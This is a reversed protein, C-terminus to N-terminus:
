FVKNLIRILLGPKLNDRILGQGFYRIRLQGVATSRVVNAPDVDAPRVVGTLVLVQRDGNIDMERIGEVVLDGNPLVEVVRGTVNATLQGARNTAGSGKFDTKAKTGALATPDIFGPLKKELGFLSGLSASGGSDKALASDATGSASINEVVQITVLDNVQRARTDLALGNMWSWSQAGTQGTTMERADDLYKALLEDYGERGNAVAPAPKQAFASVPLGIVLTVVVAFRTHRASM